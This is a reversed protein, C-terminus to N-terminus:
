NRWLCEDVLDQRQTVMQPLCIHFDTIFNLIFLTLYKCTVNSLLKIALQRADLVKQLVTYQSGTYKKMSSKVMVRTALMEKVMMPLIGERVSKACFISGNPSVYPTHEDFIAKDASEEIGTSNARKTANSPNTFQITSNLASMIEPYSIVGLRGTTENEMMNVVNNSNTNNPATTEQQNPNKNDYMAGYSTKLKGFCTSFCLNYAIMVSPYLSQFDLVLVPDAYYGSEPEMVLPIVEMPAQNAVRNRSPSLLLYDYAHAKVLLSAEVRYQSGRSLVSTFDIGYLRASEAIKRLLDLHQLLLLNGFACQFLYAITKARTQQYYSSGLTLSM